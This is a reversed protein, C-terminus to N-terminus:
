ATETICVEMGLQKCRTYFDEAATQDEFMTFLTPGSGCLHVHSAGMKIITDLYDRRLDSEEFTIAEFVNFFLLSNINGDAVLVDVLKQTISGDTFNEPTLKSYMAATKGSEAPIEPMILVVWKRSLPPLLSVTEGRGEVIATSGGLFFFVDSGLQAAMELMKEPLLDLGWFDNLGELVAAADSSDGGLGSMLPIHKELKIRVGQSRDSVTWMLDIARGVLSKGVSWGPMDCIASVDQNKEFTLNDCLKLPQIVSRIEHFGDPRKGLVELTLNIKAPASITLM